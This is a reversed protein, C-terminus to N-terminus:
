PNLGRCLNNEKQYHVCLNPLKIACGVTHVKPKEWYRLRVRTTTSIKRKGIDFGERGSVALGGLTAPSDPVM